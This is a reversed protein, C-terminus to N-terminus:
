HARAQARTKDLSVSGFREVRVMIQDYGMVYAPGITKLIIEDETSSKKYLLKTGIPTLVNWRDAITHAVDYSDRTKAKDQASM